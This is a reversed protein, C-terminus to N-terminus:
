RKRKRFQRMYNVKRQFEKQRYLVMGFVNCLLLICIVFAQLVDIYREKGINQKM